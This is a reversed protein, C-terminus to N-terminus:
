PREPVVSRMVLFAPANHVSLVILSDRRLADSGPTERTLTKSTWVERPTKRVAARGVLAERDLVDEPCEADPRHDDAQRRHDDEVHQHHRSTRGARSM